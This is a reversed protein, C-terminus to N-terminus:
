TCSIDVDTLAHCRRFLEETAEGEDPMEFTITVKSLSGFDIIPKGDSRRATCLKMVAASSRVDVVFENLQISHEPLAEHLTPEAAATTYVCIDLYKLNICPILDWVVFDNMIDM